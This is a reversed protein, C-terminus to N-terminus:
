PEPHLLEPDLLRQYLLQELRSVFVVWGSFGLVCFIMFNLNKM